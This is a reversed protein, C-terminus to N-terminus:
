RARSSIVVDRNPRLTMVDDDKQMYFIEGVCEEEEGAVVM